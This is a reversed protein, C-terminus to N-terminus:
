PQELEAEGTPADDPWPEAQVTGDPMTTYQWGCECDACDLTEDAADEDGPWVGLTYWTL